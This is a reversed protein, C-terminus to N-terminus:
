KHGVDSSSFAQPLLDALTCRMPEGAESVTIIETKTPDKAFEAIAQLCMGCPTGGDKTVVAVSRIETGGEAVMAAIAGREACSGVPYSVNEVNCGAHVRGQADLM